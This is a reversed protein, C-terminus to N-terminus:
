SISEWPCNAPKLPQLLGEPQTRQIKAHQCINCTRVYNQIYEHMGKWWYNQAVLDATRDMGQHRAASSDHVSELIKRKIENNDPVKLKGEILKPSGNTTDEIEEKIQDWSWTAGLQEPKFFGEQLPQTQLREWQPLRSLIDPKLSEKGPQFTIEFNFTSLFEAWQAQRRSLQKTKMFYELNKHDYTVLTKHPSGELYMRWDKFAMVISLMEKNHIDYNQEASSLNKSIFAVPHFLGEEDKQSLIAGRAYDSCNTEMWFPKTTDPYPLVPASIFKQKLADFADQETKTWQWPMENQLLNNLPKAM